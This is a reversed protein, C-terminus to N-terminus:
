LWRAPEPRDPSEPPGFLLVRLDSVGAAVTLLGVVGVGVRSGMGDMVVALGPLLQAFFNREWWATWPAILLLV